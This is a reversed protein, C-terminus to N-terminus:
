RSAKALKGAALSLASSIEVMSRLNAEAKANEAVDVVVHNRFLPSSVFDGMKKDLDIILGRVGKRALEMSRKDSDAEPNSGFFNFGLRISRKNIEAASRQIKDYDVTKGTTYTKVIGAQLKQIGEFDEKINAFRIEAEESSETPRLKNADRKIRELQLERMRLSNADRVETEVSPVPPPPLQAIAAVSALLIFGSINFFGIKV